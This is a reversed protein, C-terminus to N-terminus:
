RLPMTKARPSGSETVPSEEVCVCTVSESSECMFPAQSLHHFSPEWHEPSVATVPGTGEAVGRLPQLTLADFALPHVEKRM